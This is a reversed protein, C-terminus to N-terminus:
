TLKSFSSLATPSVGRSEDAPRSATDRLDGQQGSNYDAYEVSETRGPSPQRSWSSPRSVSVKFESGKLMYNFCSAEASNLLTTSFKLWRKGVLILMPNAFEIVDDIVAVPGEAVLWDVSEKQFHHIEEYLPRNQTALVTFSRARLSENVYTIRPQDSFLFCLARNCDDNQCRELFSSNPTSPTYFFNQPGLLPLSDLHKFMQSKPYADKGSVLLRQVVGTQEPFSPMTLLGRRDMHGVWSAFNKLVRM